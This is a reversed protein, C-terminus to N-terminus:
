VHARGIQLQGTVLCGIQGLESLVGCEFDLTDTTKGSPAKLWTPFKACSEKVVHLTLFDNEKDRWHRDIRPEFNVKFNYRSSLPLVHRSLFLSSFFLNELIPWSSVGLILRLPVCDLDPM